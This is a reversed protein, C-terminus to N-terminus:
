GAVAGLRERLRGLHVAWGHRHDDAYRSKDDAAWALRDLGTETVRLLTQEPGLAVLIFEVLVSNDPGPAEGTPHSWRFSFRENPEISEVRLPAVVPSGTARNDFVLRGDGGVALDLEVRDAFWQEIQDPETITRWVVAVPADIVIEREITLETM